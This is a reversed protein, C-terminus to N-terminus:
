LIFLVIFNCRAISFMKPFAVGRAGKGCFLGDSKLEM